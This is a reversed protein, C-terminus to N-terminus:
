LISSSWSQGAIWATGGDESLVIDLAEVLASEQLFLEGTRTLPDAAANPLDAEGCAEPLPAWAPTPAGTDDPAPPTNKFPEAM